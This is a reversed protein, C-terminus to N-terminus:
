SEAGHARAEGEHDAADGSDDEPECKEYRGLRHQRPEAERSGDCRLDERPVDARREDAEPDDVPHRSVCGALHQTCEEDAVHDHLCLLKEDVPVLDDVALEWTLGCSSADAM